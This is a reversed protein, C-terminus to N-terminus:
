KSDSFYAMVLSWKMFITCVADFIIRKCMLFQKLSTEDQEREMEIIYVM